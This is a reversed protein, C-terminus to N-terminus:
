RYRLISTKPSTRPLTSRRRRNLRSCFIETRASAHAGPATIESTARPQQRALHELPPAKRRQVHDANRASRLQRREDGDLDRGVRRHIM